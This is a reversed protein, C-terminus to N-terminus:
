QIYTSSYLFLVNRSQNKFYRVFNGIWDCTMEVAMHYIVFPLIFFFFFRNVPVSPINLFELVFCCILFRVAGSFVQLSLIRLHHFFFCFMFLVFLSSFQHQRRVMMITLGESHNALVLVLDSVSSVCVCILLWWLSM